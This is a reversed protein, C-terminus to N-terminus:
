NLTETTATIFCYFSFAPEKCYLEHTLVRTETEIKQVLPLYDKQHQELHKMLDRDSRCRNNKLENYDTFITSNGNLLVDDLIKEYEIVILPYIKANDGFGFDFENIVETMRKRISFYYTNDELNSQLGTSITNFLISNEQCHKDSALRSFHDQLLEISKIYESLEEDIIRDLVFDTNMETITATSNSNLNDQANSEYPTHSFSLALIFLLLPKM